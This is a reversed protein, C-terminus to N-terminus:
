HSFLIHMSFKLYPYLMRVKYFCKINVSGENWLYGQKQQTWYESDWPQSDRVLGLEQLASPTMECHGWWWTGFASLFPLPRARALYSLRRSCEGLVGLNHTQDTTLACLLILWCICLYTSCCVLIEIERFWNKFFVSYALLVCSCSRLLHCNFFIITTVM